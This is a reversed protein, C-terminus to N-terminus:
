MWTNTVEVLYLFLQDKTEYGKYESINGLVTRKDKLVILSSRAVQVNSRAKEKVSSLLCLM